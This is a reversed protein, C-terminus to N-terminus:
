CIQVYRSKNELKAAALVDLSYRRKEMAHHVAAAAVARAAASIWAKILTNM